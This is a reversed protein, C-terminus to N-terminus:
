DLDEALDRWNPNEREILQLKWLRKWEKIQRERRFADERSEHSEFWVLKEVGYRATFGAFAKEKHQQVRAILDETMGVYITGNRGSAVIYTFFMSLLRASAKEQTGVKTPILPIPPTAASTRRTRDLGILSM